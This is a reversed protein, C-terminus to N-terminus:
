AKEKLDLDLQAVLLRRLDLSPLAKALRRSVSMRYPRRGSLLAHLIQPSVKSRKALKWLNQEHDKKM